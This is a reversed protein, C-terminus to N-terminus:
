KKFKRSGCAPCKEEGDPVKCGCYACTRNIKDAKAKAEEAKANAEAQEAEQKAKETEAEQKAKKIIHKTTLVFAVAVGVSAVVLVIGITLLSKVFQKANSLDQKANVYEMNKSLSYNTNISFWAGDEESYAYAVEGNWGLAQSATFQAYTEAKVLESTVENRYEYLIYFYYTGNVEDYEYYGTQPNYENYNLVQAKRFTATALYYGTENNKAKSIVNEYWKADEEYTCIQSEYQVIDKKIATRGIFCGVTCVIFLVLVSLLALFANQKGTSIILTRGGFRWRWPNRVIPAGYGNNSGHWGGGSSHSGGGSSHSGGGSSHSHSPGSPM